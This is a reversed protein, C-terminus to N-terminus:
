FINCLEFTYPKNKICSNIKIEGIQGSFYQSLKNNSGFYFFLDSGTFFLILNSYRKELKSLTSPFYVDIGTQQTLERDYMITIFHWQSVLIVTSDVKVQEEKSYYLQQEYSQLTLQIEVNVGGDLVVCRLDLLLNRSDIINFTTINEDRIQVMHYIKNANNISLKYWAQFEFTNELKFNSKLIQTQSTQIGSILKQQKPDCVLVSKICTDLNTKFSPPTIDLSGQFVNISSIWGPFANFYLNQYYDSFYGQGGISLQFKTQEIDFKTQSTTYSSIMYNYIFHYIKRDVPVIKYFKYQWIGDLFNLNFTETSSINQDANIIMTQLNQNNTDLYTFIRFLKAQEEYLRFLLSGSAVQEGETSSGYFYQTQIKTKPEYKFWFSFSVEQNFDFEESIQQYNQDLNLLNMISPTCEAQLFTIIGALITLYTIM